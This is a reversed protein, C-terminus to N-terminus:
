LGLLQFWFRRTAFFFASGLLVKCFLLLQIVDHRAGELFLSSIEPGFLYLMGCSALAGSLQPQRERLLFGGGIMLFSLPLWYLQVWWWRYELNGYNTALVGYVIGLGIIGCYLLYSYRFVLGNVISFLCIVAIFALLASTPWDWKEILLFGTLTLLLFTAGLSLHTLAPVRRRLLFSLGYFFLIGVALIAIQMLPTFGNFHFALVIMIATVVATALWALVMKWSFNDPHDFLFSGSRGSDSPSLHPAYSGGESSRSSGARSGTYGSVNGDLRSGGSKMRGNIAWVPPTDGETYLNLLFICYHEPLLQSQRWHNIENIITKRRQEDM